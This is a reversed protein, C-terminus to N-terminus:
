GELGHRDYRSHNFRIWQYGLFGWGVAAAAGCFMLYRKGWKGMLDLGVRAQDHCRRM